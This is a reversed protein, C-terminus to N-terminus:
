MGASALVPMKDVRKDALARLIESISTMRLRISRISDGRQMRLEMASRSDSSEMNDISSHTIVDGKHIGAAEAASGPLVNEVVLQNDNRVIKMGSLFAKRVAPITAEPHRRTFGVLEMSKQGIPDFESWAKALIMQESVPTLSLHTIRKSREVTLDHEGAQQWVAQLGYPAPLRMGDVAILRDGVMVGADSAPSNPIVGIVILQHDVFGTLFGPVLPNLDSRLPYHMACRGVCDDSAACTGSHDDLNDCSLPLNAYATSYCVLLLSLSLVFRRM